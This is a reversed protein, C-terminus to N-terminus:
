RAGAQAVGALLGPSRDPQGHEQVMAKVAAALAIAAAVAPWAPNWARGPWSASVPMWWWASAVPNARPIRIAGAMMSRARIMVAAVIRIRLASRAPTLGM